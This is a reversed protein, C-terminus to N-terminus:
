ISVSAKRRKCGSPIQEKRNETNQVVSCTKQLNGRKM